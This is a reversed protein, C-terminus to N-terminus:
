GRVHLAPRLDRSREPIEVTLGPRDAVPFCFAYVLIHPPCDVLGFGSQCTTSCGHQYAYQACARLQQTFRRRTLRGTRRQGIVDADFCEPETRYAATCRPPLIRRCAVPKQQPILSSAHDQRPKRRSPASFTDHIKIMSHLSRCLRSLDAEQSPLMAITGGFHEM